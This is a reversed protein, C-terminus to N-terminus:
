NNPAALLTSAALVLFRDGFHRAQVFLVTYFGTLSKSNRFNQIWLRSSYQLFHEFKIYLAFPTVYMHVCHLFHAM